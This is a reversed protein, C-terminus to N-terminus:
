TPPRRSPRPRRGATSRAARIPRPRCRPRRASSRRSTGCSTTTATSTWAPDTAAARRATRTAPGAPRRNKRWMPDVTMSHHRGDPNAQPFVVVDLTTSSRARGERRGPEDRGPQHRHRHPLRRHAAARLQDPHGPQGMRPRPGRRPLVRRRPRGPGPPDRIARCTRGEWTIHPLTILETFGANAPGAALQLATEVEAVNLYSMATGRRRRPRPRSGTAGNRRAAPEGARGRRRGRAPGGPVGSRDAQRDRRRRGRRRGPLGAGSEKLTQGYVRVGHVRVIDAMAARDAGHVTIHFNTM